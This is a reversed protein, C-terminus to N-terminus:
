VQLTMLLLLMIHVSSLKKVKQRIIVLISQVLTQLLMRLLQLRLAANELTAVAESLQVNTANVTLTGENTISKVNDDIVLAAKYDEAPTESRGSWTWTYDKSLYVDTAAAFVNNLAPVETKDKLAAIKDQWEQTIVIKAPTHETSPTGNIEDCAKVLVKVGGANITQLLAISIKSIKFENDADKDLLLTAATAKGSAIYYKLCKQLHEDSKIHMGNMNGTSFDVTFKYKGKHNGYQNVFTNHLAPDWKRLDTGAPEADAAALQIWEPAWKEGAIEHDAALQAPDEYAFACDKLAKVVEVIGYSTELTTTVETTNIGGGNIVPLSNFWFWGNTKGETKIGADATLTIAGATVVFGNNLPLTAALNKQTEWFNGNHDGTNPEVKPAYTLSNGAGDLDVTVKYIDAAGITSGAPYTYDIDTAGVIKKGDFVENNKDYALDLTTQNSFFASYIKFPKNIGAQDWWKHNADETGDVTVNTWKDGILIANKAVSNWTENAGDALPQELLSNFKIAGINVTTVDYPRYLFYNGVYISTQPKFIKGREPDKAVILNHNQWAKGDIALDVAEGGGLWAFGFLDDYEIGWKTDMRTTASEDDMFFTADVKEIGAFQDNSIVEKDFDESSCAFLLPLALASYLYKKMKM